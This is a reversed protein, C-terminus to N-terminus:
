KMLNIGLYQLISPLSVLTLVHVSFNLTKTIIEPDKISICNTLLPLVPLGRKRLVSEHSTQIMAHSPSYPPRFLNLWSLLDGM